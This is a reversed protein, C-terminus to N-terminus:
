HEALMTELQNKFSDFSQYHIAQMGIRSAAECFEPNDDTFVCADYRVGLRDAAIEFIQLEPKAYGENGSSVVTDFLEDLETQDFRRSIGGKGINSLIATKYSSRLQKAYVLLEINRVEGIELQKKYEDVTLGLLEAIRPSTDGSDAFGHHSLHLLHKAEDFGAPDTRRLKETLPSLADTVIVGFFDFIIAEIKAMGGNYGVKGGGLDM